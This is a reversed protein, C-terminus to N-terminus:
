TTTNSCVYFTATGTPTGLGTTGTVTMSDSIQQNPAITTLPNGTTPDVPTTKVGPTTCTAFTTPPTFAELQSTSSSGSSRTQAFFNSACGISFPLGSLNVAGEMFENTDVQSPGLAGECVWGGCSIAGGANTAVASNAPFPETTWSGTTDCATGTPQSGPCTWVYFAPNGLAGGNDYNIEFMFDGQERQGSFGGSCNAVGTLGAMSQLFQFDIHSDGNNIIRQGGFYIEIQGLSNMRSVAFANALEDKSPVSGVGWGLQSLGNDWKGQQGGNFSFSGTNAGCSDTTTNIPSSEFTEALINSPGTYVPPVPLGTSSTANPEGCNFLGNAGEAYVAGAAQQASTCHSGANVGSVLPGPGNSWGWTGGDGSTWLINGDISLFNDPALTTGAASAATAVLNYGAAAMIAM